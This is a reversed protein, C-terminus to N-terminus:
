PAGKIDSNDINTLKNSKARNASRPVIQLNIPIHLGCVNKGQLPIIHDVELPEESLWQLEEAIAYIEKIEDLHKKTLWPPTARLKGARRKAGKAIYMSKNREYYKKHRSKIHEKNSNRWIEAVKQAREKNNTNWTKILDKVHEKNETRWKKTAEISKELNAKKWAQATKAKRLKNQDYWEASKKLKIERNNSYWLKHLQKTREKNNARYEAQCTKCSSRLKDKSTNDICFETLAKEEKCKSCVKTVKEESM